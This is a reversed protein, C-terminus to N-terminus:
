TNTVQLKAIHPSYIHYLKIEKLPPAAHQTRTRPNFIKEMKHYRSVVQICFWFQSPFFYMEKLIIKMTVLKLSLSYKSLSKFYEESVIFDDCLYTM